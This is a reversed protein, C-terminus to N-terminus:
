TNKGLDSILQYDSTLSFWIFDKLYWSSNDDSKSWFSTLFSDSFSQRFEISFRVNSSQSNILFTTRIKFSKEALFRSIKPASYRVFIMLNNFSIRFTKTFKESGIGELNDVSIKRVINQVNESSSFRWFFFCGIIRALTLCHIPRSHDFPMQMFAFFHMFSPFVNQLDNHLPFNM